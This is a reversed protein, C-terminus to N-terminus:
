QNHLYLTHSLLSYDLSDVDCALCARSSYSPYSVIRVFARLANVCKPGENHALDWLKSWSVLRAIDAMIKTDEKQSCKGLLLSWNHSTIQKKVQTVSPMDLDPNPTLLSRTLNVNLREELELCERILCVSEVDDSLAELTRSSLTDSTDRIRRLFCLKKTLCRAEAAQCDMVIM